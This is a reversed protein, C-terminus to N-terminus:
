FSSSNRKLNREDGLFQVLLSIINESSKGEPKLASESFGIPKLVLASKVTVKV